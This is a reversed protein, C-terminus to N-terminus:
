TPVQREDYQRKSIKLAAPYTVFFMDDCLDAINATDAEANHAVTETEGNRPDLNRLSVEWFPYSSGATFYYDTM